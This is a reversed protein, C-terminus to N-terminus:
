DSAIGLADMVALGKENPWYAWVYEDGLGSEDAELLNLMLLETTADDLRHFDGDRLRDILGPALTRAIVAADFM